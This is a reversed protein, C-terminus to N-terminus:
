LEPLKAHSLIESPNTIHGRVVHITAYGEDGSWEYRVVYWGDETPMGPTFHTESPKAKREAMKEKLREHWTKNEKM